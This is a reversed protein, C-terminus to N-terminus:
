KLIPIFKIMIKKIKFWIDMDFNFFIIRLISGVNIIKINIIPINAFKINDGYLM